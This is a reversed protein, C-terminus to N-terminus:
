SSLLFFAVLLSSTEITKLELSQLSPLYGNHRSVKTTNLIECRDTPSPSKGYDRQNELESEGDVWRM